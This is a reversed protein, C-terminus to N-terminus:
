NWWTTFHSSRSIVCSISNFYNQIKLFINYLLSCTIVM